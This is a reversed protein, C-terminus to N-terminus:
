KPDMYMDTQIYKGNKLFATSPPQEFDKAKDLFDNLEVTPTIKM